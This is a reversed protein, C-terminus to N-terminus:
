ENQFVLRYYAAFNTAPLSEIHLVLDGSIQIEIKEPIVRTWNTLTNSTEIWCSGSSERSLQYHLAIFDAENESPVLKAKPASAVDLPDGGMAYEQMDLIGDQDADGAGNTSVGYTGAWDAYSIPHIDSHLVAIADLDFGASGGTPYPDYIVEGRCDLANGDGVVDIIRVYSIHALDVLPFTNTLHEIYAV